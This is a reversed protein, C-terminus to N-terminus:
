LSALNGGLTKRNEHGSEARKQHRTMQKGKIREPAVYIGYFSDKVDVCVNLETESPTYILLNHLLIDGTNTLSLTKSQIESHVIQRRQLYLLADCIQHLIKWLLRESVKVGTKRYDQVLENLSKPFPELVIGVTGQEKFWFLIRM